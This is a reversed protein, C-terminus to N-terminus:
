KILNINRIKLWLKIQYKDQFNITAILNYKKKTSTVDNEQSYYLFYLTLQQQQAETPKLYQTYM